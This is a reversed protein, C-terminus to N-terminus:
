KPVLPRVMHAIKLTKDSPRHTTTEHFFHKPGRTETQAMLDKRRPAIKLEEDLAKKQQRQITQMYQWLGVM